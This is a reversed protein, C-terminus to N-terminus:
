PQRIPEVARELREVMADAAALREKALRRAQTHAGICFMTGAVGTAAIGLARGIVGTMVMEGLEGPASLADRLVLAGVLFAFATAIRACVAPVGSWRQLRWDLETLQENVRATREAPPAGLAELLDREWDARPDDAIAARVRAIEKEGPNKGLRKVVEDPHLATAFAVLWLRRASAVVCALSVIAALALAL